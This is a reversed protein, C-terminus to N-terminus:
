AVKQSNRGDVQVVLLERGLLKELGEIAMPPQQLDQGELWFFRPFVTQQHPNGKTIEKRFM